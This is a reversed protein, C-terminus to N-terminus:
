KSSLGGGALSDPLRNQYVSPEKSTNRLHSADMEHWANNGKGTGEAAGFFDFANVTVVPGKAAEQRAWYEKLATTTCLEEFQAGTAGDSQAVMSDIMEPYDRLIRLAIKRRGDETLLPMTIIRDIRGPRSVTGNELKALASDVKEIHNTTIILFVGNPNGVGQVTNLLCDFSLGGGKKDLLNTRGDFVADIDEILVICPAASCVHAWCRDMDRNTMTAIDLVMLPIGLDQGLARVLSSKGTGPLGTLLWGRRWVIKRDQYWQRSKLWRRAEEVAEDVEPSLAMREMTASLEVPEGLEDHTYGIPHNARADVSPVDTSGGVPAAEPSRSDGEVGFTGQLRQVYFRSVHGIQEMRSNYGRLAETIFQKADFTGRLFTLCMKETVAPSNRANGGSPKEAGFSVMIPRWGKWFVMAKSGIVEKAVVQAKSLPRVWVPYGSINFYAGRTPKLHEWCYTAIAPPVWSGEIEVRIIMLGVLRDLVGKVQSWCSALLGTCLVGTTVLATPSVPLM